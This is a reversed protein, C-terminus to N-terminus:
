EAALIGNRSNGLGDLFSLNLPKSKKLSPQTAVHGNRTTVILSPKRRTSTKPTKPKKSGDRGLADSKTPSIPLAYSAIEERRSNASRVLLRYIKKCIRKFSKHPHNLFPLQHRMSPYNLQLLLNNRM